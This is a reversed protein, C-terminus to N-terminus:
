SHAQLSAATRAIRQLVAALATRISEYPFRLITCGLSQLYTDRNQDHAVQAPESHIEGDLEVVLKLDRCYFDVVFIDISVQRRFKLRELRRDRLAEWLVREAPTQDRRLTRSRELSEAKKLDTPV